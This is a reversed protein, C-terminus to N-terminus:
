CVQASVRFLASWMEGLCGLEAASFFCVTCFLCCGTAWMLARASDVSMGCVISSYFVSLGRAEAFSDM